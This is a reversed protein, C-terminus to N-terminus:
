LFNFANSRSRVTVYASAQDEGRNNAATCTYNGSRRIDQVTLVGDDRGGLLSEGDREWLIAPKPHGTASCNLHFVTEPDVTVPQPPSTIV